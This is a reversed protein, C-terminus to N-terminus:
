PKPPRVRITNSGTLPKRLLSSLLYCHRHDVMAARRLTKLYRPILGYFTGTVTVSGGATVVFPASGGSHAGGTGDSVIQNYATSWYINYNLANTRSCCRERQM